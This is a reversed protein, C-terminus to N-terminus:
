RVLEITVKEIQDLDDVYEEKIREFVDEYTYNTVEFNIPYKGKHKVTVLYDSAYVKEESHNVMIAKRM